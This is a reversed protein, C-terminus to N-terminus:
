RPAATFRQAELLGPLDADASHWIEQLTSYARAAAKGDGAAAAARGLGLLSLARKPALELAREFELQAEGYRGLQLLIEGLLEHSPKVVDPPGFELPMADEMATAERMLDAARQPAGAALQLVAELQKRLILPVSSTRRSASTAPEPALARLRALQSRASARDGRQLAAYGQVFADQAEAVPGTGALDLTWNLAPDDWRETSVIYHARM